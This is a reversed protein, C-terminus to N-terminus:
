KYHLVLNRNDLKKYEPQYQLHLWSFSQEDILIDFQFKSRILNFLQKNGERSGTTLDVALGKKHFSTSSGKVLKNLKECRYGSNVYIPKGYLERIPNLKSILYNLNSEIQLNPISNDINSKDATTSRTLENLTFYSKKM